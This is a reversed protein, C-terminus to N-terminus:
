NWLTRGRFLEKSLAKKRARRPKRILDPLYRTSLKILAERALTAEGSLPVEDLLSSALDLLQTLAENPKLKRQEILDLM